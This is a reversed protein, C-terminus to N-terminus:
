NLLLNSKPQLNSQRLRAAPSTPHIKSKQKETKNISPVLSVLDEREPPSGRHLHSPQVKIAASALRSGQFFHTGLRSGLFLPVRTSFLFLAVRNM